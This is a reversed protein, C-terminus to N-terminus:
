EDSKRGIKVLHLYLGPSSFHRQQKEADILDELRKLESNVSEEEPNEEVEVPVTSVSQSLNQMRDFDARTELSPGSWPVSDEGDMARKLRDLFLDRVLETPRNATCPRPLWAQDIENRREHLRGLEM